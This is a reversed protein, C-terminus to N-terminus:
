GRRGDWDRRELRLQSRVANVRNQLTTVEARTLGNRAYRAYLQQIQRADTRLRTAERSSITRRAAARDIAQRLSNIDQRIQSNRAPTLSWADNHGRNPGQMSGHNSGHMPGQMQAQAPAAAFGILLAPALATLIKIRM